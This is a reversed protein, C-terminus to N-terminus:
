RAPILSAQALRTAAPRWPPPEGAALWPEDIAQPTAGLGALARITSAVSSLSRGPRADVYGAPPISAGAALL